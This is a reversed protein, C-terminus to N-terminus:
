PPSPMGQAKSHTMPLLFPETSSPSRSFVCRRRLPSGSFDRRVSSSEPSIPAWERMGLVHNSTMGYKLCHAGGSNFAVNGGITCISQSSPDPAYYLGHPEAAKSVSLNVVGPEVVAIREEPDLRLIRNLRNLAILVGEAVPVSGGSLSTGSGRAVFPVAHEHCLRVTRVVEDATEPIVVVAPKQYFVSLADFEYAAFQAENTLIRDPPYIRRLDTLFSSTTTM